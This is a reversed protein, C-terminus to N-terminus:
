RSRRVSRVFDITTKAKVRNTAAAVTARRRATGRVRPEVTRDRKEADSMTKIEERGAM